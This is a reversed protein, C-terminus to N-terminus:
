LSTLLPFSSSPGAEMRTKSAKEECVWPLLIQQENRTAEGESAWGAEGMYNVKIRIKPWM